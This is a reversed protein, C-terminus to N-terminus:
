SIYWNGLFYARRQPSINCIHQNTFRTFLKMTPLYIIHHNWFSNPCLMWDCYKSTKVSLCRKLISVEALLCNRKTKEWYRRWSYCMRRSDGCIWFLTIASQLKIWRFQSCFSINSSDHIRPFHARVRTTFCIRHITARSYRFISRQMLKTRMELVKPRVSDLLIRQWTFVTAIVNQRVIPIKKNNTPWDTAIIFRSRMAM